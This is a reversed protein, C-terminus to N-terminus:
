RNNTSIFQKYDKGVILTADLFYDKNAQMVVNNQVIGLSDAIRKAADTNHTRSIVISEDINFSRYNGTNVVDFKKKRLEDTFKDAVGDVGCGNLIELQIIKKEQALINEGKTKSFVNLDVLLRYGLSVILISLIIISIILFIDTPNSAINNTRDRISKGKM